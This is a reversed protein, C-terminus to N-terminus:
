GVILVNSAPLRSVPPKPCLPLRLWGAAPSPGPLDPGQEPLQLLGAAAGHQNLTSGSLDPAPQVCSGASGPQSEPILGPLQAPQPCYLAGSGPNTGRVRCPEIRHHQM